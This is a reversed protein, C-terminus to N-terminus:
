DSVHVIIGIISVPLSAFLSDLRTYDTTKAYKIYINLIKVNAQAFGNHILRSYRLLLAHGTM